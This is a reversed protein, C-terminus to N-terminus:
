SRAGSNPTYGEPVPRKLLLFGKELGNFWNSAKDMTAPLEWGKGAELFLGGPLEELRMTEGMFCETEQETEADRIVIHDGECTVVM